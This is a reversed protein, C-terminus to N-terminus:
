KGGSEINAHTKNTNHKYVLIAGFIICLLISLIQSVRFEGLMLSDARLGEIIARIFGYVALYIYTLQGKYQRKNRLKFLIIFLILDCVSEYLFTPHVEIYSGNEIIGMRFVNDTKTGYAEVNLFNGWRGIAQGLPLVPVIYDFMDLVTIKKIKCLIIITVIVGIIGGYIAMGGDRINFIKIPSQIYYELKFIVFYLRACVLGVPIGIIFVDLVDEFKINYKGDDKKLLILAIIFAIVIFIAYWYVDIGGINIAINNFKLNLGISPFSVEKM